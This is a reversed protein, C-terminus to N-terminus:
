LKDVTHIYEFHKVAFKAKNSQLHGIFHWTITDDAIIEIKEVAEQIYNEGFHKAGADIAEQIIKVSKKKSVAILQVGEPRRDCSTATEDIQTKIKDLNEKITKM